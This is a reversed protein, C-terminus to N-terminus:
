SALGVPEAEAVARSGRRLSWARSGREVAAYVGICYIWGLVIDCVYHEGSYVLAFAMAIPYLWLLHRWRSRWWKAFFLAILLTYAAHLSPMAAVANDYQTGKEWLPALTVFSLHDSVHQIVRDVAPMQGVSGAMWPPEAPYLVFTTCGVVALGVVM